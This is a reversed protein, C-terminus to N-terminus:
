GLFLKALAVLVLPAGVIAAIMLLGCKWEHDDAYLPKTLPTSRNM